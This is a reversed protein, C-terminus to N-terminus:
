CGFSLKHKFRCKVGTTEMMIAKNGGKKEAKFNLNTHSNGEDWPIIKESLLNKLKVHIINHQQKPVLCTALM